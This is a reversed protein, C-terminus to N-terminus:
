AEEIDISSEMELGRLEITYMNYNRDAARSATAEDEGQDVGCQLNLIAKYEDFNFKKKQRIGNLMDQPPLFFLSYYAKAREFETHQQGNAVTKLSQQLALINRIIKKIGFKNAFRIYRANSILLHEMLPGLGVFIFCCEEKLLTASVLDDCAGLEANLDIIYPDPEGAEHDVSYNGHRLAADLYHIVRCRIDIRITHLIIEALQNYTQILAGFRLAMERTLPLGLQEDSINSLLAHLSTTAPSLPELRSKPNTPSLVGGPGAKLSNLETTFWALSRYLACLAALNRTSPVIDGKNVSGQVLFSSELHTEQRCLHELRSTNAESTSFLEALCLSIESKQAWQAALASSQTSGWCTSVLDYFRDSCRQYFQIIVSLILRSYNERHFPTSRLMACLSNILAILQTSAKLLPQLSIRMSLPDPQFAEPGTVAQHFLTSVKEELQPLYVKLVFNDLVESAPRTSEVGSPLIESIRSLFTLTPQFLVSVHFADPRILLRHHQSLGTLRDDTGVTSLMAQVTSETSNQVLGPMTDKLARALEDEHKKLIKNTLKTDTDAFRFVTKSKDRNFRGDRLVENISSIPNRGAVSSQGDNTLYDHLLTRVEAQVPLWMEALPFLAGPKAGSSDKFDRRSGIRKTVEYIARLGQTVADLKSYLTWFLDKLTEQDAYRTSSELAALRLSSARLSNGKSAMSSGIVSFGMGATPDGVVFVYGGESRRLSADGFGFMSVRKAEEAREEVQDLTAEVLAFIESPLRQAVMDLASGLKGLVAFSELLTEIYTFSDSEPNANSQSAQSSFPFLSSINSFSLNSPLSSSSSIQPSDSSQFSAETIDHPPDNPRMALGSLFRSLRSSKNIDALPEQTSEPEPVYPPPEDEFEVRPFNQQNLTYAVWRSECWFSKLYLHNHLEDILIERLAMEQGSLYSRLDVVAGIEQMDQTNIMKLSRVLLISAQLLRKESMLTELLDPVSKLNEIQDLIRMMEELTQSRSWLQVLDARKSGLADRAEQLAFRTDSIQTQTLGLYNILSAHHPLAAAFAQYHKDVSGKLAKSLTAKTQRFSDMDKGVPSDGLLSLALDVNNFDPDIVFEWEDTIEDLVVDIDGAKAKGTAKRGPMREKIREQRLKEMEMEKQKEREYEVDEKGNTMARKRAGASQFASMVAALSTPSSCVPDRYGQTAGSSTSTRESTSYDSVQRARLESRQPRSPRDEPPCSPVPSM